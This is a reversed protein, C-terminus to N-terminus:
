SPSLPCKAVFHRAGEEFAFGLLGTSASRGIGAFCHYVVSCRTKRRISNVYKVLNVLEDVQAGRLRDSDEWDGKFLHHVTHVRSDWNSTLNFTRETAGKEPWWVAEGIQALTLEEQGDSSTFTRTKSGNLPLYDDDATMHHEEMQNLRVVVSTSSEPDVDASPYQNSAANEYRAKWFRYHDGPMPQQSLICSRGSPSTVTSENLPKGDVVTASRNYPTLHSLRNLDTDARRYFDQMEKSPTKGEPADSAFSAYQRLRRRRNLDGWTTNPDTSM